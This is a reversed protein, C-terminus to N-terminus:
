GPKPASSMRATRYPTSIGSTPAPGCTGRGSGDPCRKRRSRVDAIQSGHIVKDRVIIPPSNISYLMANLSDRAERDARPIGVMADVMGSGEPGFDRCPRGTKAEVCVLYGNGTGWFIGSM